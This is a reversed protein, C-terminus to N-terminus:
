VAHGLLMDDSRERREDICRVDVELAEVGAICAARVDIAVETGARVAVGGYLARDLQEGRAGGAMKLDRGEDDGAHGVVVVGDIGGRAPEGREVGGDGVVERPEERAPAHCGMVGCGYLLDVVEGVDRPAVEGM